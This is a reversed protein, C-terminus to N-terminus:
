KGHIYQMFKFIVKARTVTFGPFTKILEDTIQQWVNVNKASPNNFAPRFERHLEILRRVACAKWDLELIYTM